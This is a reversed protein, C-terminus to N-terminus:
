TLDTDNAAPAVSAVADTEAWKLSLGAITLYVGLLVLYAGLLGVSVVPHPPLLLFALALVATAAGVLVWDRAFAGRGRVRIGSYMELFGTVAGWVSVLYLFFGLGGSHFTLALVAVVVGVVGQLTFLTHVSERAPTFRALVAVSIGTVLTFVGFVVLGFEASHDATFTIAAAATLAVVARAVPVIWYRSGAAPSTPANAM